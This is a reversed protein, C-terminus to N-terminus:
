HFSPAVDANDNPITAERDKQEAICSACLESYRLQFLDYTKKQRWQGEQTAVPRRFKEGLRTSTFNPMDVGLTARLQKIWPQPMLPLVAASSVLVEISFDSGLGPRGRRYVQDLANAWYMFLLPGRLSAPCRIWSQERRLYIRFPRGLPADWIGDGRPSPQPTTQTGQFLYCLLEVKDSLLGRLIPRGNSPDFCQHTSGHVEYVSHFLGAACVDESAGWERLIVYTSALHSLLGGMRKNDCVDPRHEAMKLNIKKLVELYSKNQSIDNLSAVPHHLLLSNGELTVNHSLWRHLSKRDYRSYGGFSSLYRKCLDAGLALELGEEQIRLILEDVVSPRLGASLALGHDIDEQCIRPM